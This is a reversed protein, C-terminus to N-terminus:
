TVQIGNGIVYPFKQATRTTATNSAGRNNTPARELSEAITTANAIIRTATKQCLAPDAASRTVVSRVSSSNSTSRSLRAANTTITTTDFNKISGINNSISSSGNISFITITVAIAPM